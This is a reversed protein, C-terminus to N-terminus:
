NRGRMMKTVRRKRGRQKKAEEMERLLFSSAARLTFAAAAELNL